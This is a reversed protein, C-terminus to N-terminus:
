EKTETRIPDQIPALISPDPLDQAPIPVSNQTIVANSAIVTNFRAKSTRLPIGQPPPPQVIPAGCKECYVGLPNYWRQNCAKGDKLASCVFHLRCGICVEASAPLKENCRRCRFNRERARAQDAPAPGPQPPIAPMMSSGVKARMFLVPLGFGTQPNLGGMNTLSKHGAKVARELTENLALARYFGEAFTNATAATVKDQMAIVAPINMAAVRRAVGSLALHPNPLASECAQLFVLKLNASRMVLNAVNQEPVWRVKGDDDEFALEGVGNNRRGHGVFHVIHPQELSMMEGVASETVWRHKPDLPADKERDAFAKVLAFASRNAGILKRIYGSEVSSLNSDRPNCCVVLTKWPKPAALSLKSDDSSASTIWRIVVIEMPLATLFVDPFSFDFPTHMYEWPLSSLWEQETGAFELELRLLDIKGSQLAQLEEELVKRTQDRFALVFLQEGILGLLELLLSTEQQETERYEFLLKQLFDITHRRLTQSQVPLLDVTGHTADTRGWSLVGAGFTLNLTNTRAGNPNPPM